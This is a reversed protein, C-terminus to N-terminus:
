RRAPLPVSPCSEAGKRPVPTERPPEPPPPPEDDLIRGIAPLCSIGAVVAPPLAVTVHKQRVAHEVFVRAALGIGDQWDRGSMTTYVTANEPDLRRAQERLLPLLSSADLRENM